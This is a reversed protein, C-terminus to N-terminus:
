EAYQYRSLSDTSLLLSDALPRIKPFRCSDPVFNIRTLILVCRRCAQVLRFDFHLVGAIPRWLGELPPAGLLIM